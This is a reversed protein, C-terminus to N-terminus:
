WHPVGALGEDSQMKGRTKDLRLEERLSKVRSEGPRSIAKNSYKFIQLLGTEGDPHRHSRSQTRFGVRMICLAM